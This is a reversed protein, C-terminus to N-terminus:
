ANIENIEDLEEQLALIASQDFITKAIIGRSLISSLTTIAATLEATSSSEFSPAETTSGTTSVTGGEAYGSKGQRAYELMRITDAYQPSETMWQPAVWEKEHVFGAVKFGSEDPSGFGDGTFGGESLGQIKKVNVLGATIAVAAAFAARVPSTPDGVILQSAYAKNAAVYTDAFAIATNIGKMEEESAGSLAVMNGLLGSVLSFTELEAARQAAEAELTKETEAKKYKTTVKLQAKAHMDQLMTTDLGFKDAKAYLKEYKDDVEALEKDIGELRQLEILDIFAQRDELFKTEKEIRKFEQEEEKIALEEDRMIELQKIIEDRGKAAEIEKAYKNRIRQLDAEDKDLKSLAIDDRHKQLKAELKKRIALEKDAKEKAKKLAKDLEAQESKSLEKVAEVAAKNEETINATADAVENLKDVVIEFQPVQFSEALNTGALKDFGELVTRIPVVILDFYRIVANATLKVRNQWSTTASTLQEFWDFVGILDDIFGKWAKGLVGEGDEIRLIFRDYRNGLKELKAAATDNKLAFENALSTGEEFATNSIVQLETLRDTKESLIGVISAARASDIGYNQLTETLGILGKQNSKAGVAILKLAEFADEEVIKKFEKVDIGAIKAFKSVDKGIAPLLKNFTTGAVEISQGSEDFLAGLAMIDPASIDAQASVGALRKTFDIIPGEQAKSNAGLENLASGVKSLAVGIGFKKELDFNEAIKGLTLGIEEASGELSDGLAVFAMDAQKTFDIVDKGQLGLRGAATALELVM